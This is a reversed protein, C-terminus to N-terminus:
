ANIVGAATKEQQVKKMAQSWTNRLDILLNKAEELKDMDNKLNGSIITRYIYDYIPYLQKAIDYKMDLTSMFEVMIKEAKILSKNSKSVDKVKIFNIGENIFKIAGNYLMLTLTQPSATLVQQRKYANASYAMNQM